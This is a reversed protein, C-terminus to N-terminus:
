FGETVITQIVMTKDSGTKTVCITVENMEGEFNEEEEGSQKEQEQNEENDFQTPTKINSLLRVKYAGVDKSLEVLTNDKSLSWGKSNFEKEYSSLDNLNESEAKLEEDIISRIKSSKELKGFSFKPTTFGLAAPACLRAAPLVGRTLIRSIM